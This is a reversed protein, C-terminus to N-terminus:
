ELRRKLLEVAEGVRVPLKGFGPLGTFVQTVTPPKLRHERLLSINTLVTEVGGECIIRGEDIIYCRNFLEAAFDMDHTAIIITKGNRNLDRIINTLDEVGGPDLNSTPEDLVLIDPNMVLISAISLKKKEGYSLHFTVRKNYDKLGVTKLADNVKVSIEDLSLGSNLLGYAVEEEVINKLIQDNPDQFVLGVERRIRSINKENLTNLGKVLVFGSQPKLLGNFHLLLTSKGAGNPGIIGVCEGRYVTMNVNFLGKDTKPYKFFLNKVELIPEM